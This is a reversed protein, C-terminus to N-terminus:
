ASVSSCGSDSIVGTLSRINTEVVIRACDAGVFNGRCIWWRDHEGPALTLVAAARGPHCCSIPRIVHDDPVRSCRATAVLTQMGVITIGASDNVCAAPGVFQHAARAM